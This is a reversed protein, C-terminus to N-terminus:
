GRKRTDQIEVLSADGWLRELEYYHRTERDFIHVILNGYDMLVWKAEKLGEIHSPFSRKKSLAEEIADAIAKVQRTSEGSCILFYDAITTLGHIDLIIVDKAKKGEAVTASLVAKDKSDIEM